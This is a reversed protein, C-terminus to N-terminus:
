AAALARPPLQPQERARRRAAERRRAKAKMRARQHPGPSWDTIAGLLHRKFEEATAPPDVPTAMFDAYIAEIDARTVSGNLPALRGARRPRQRRPPRVDRRAAMM